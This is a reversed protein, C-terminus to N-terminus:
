NEPDEIPILDEVDIESVAAYIEASSNKVDVAGGGDKPISVIFVTGAGERSEVSIEGAHLEVFAKVLALGIGSGSYHSDIQYFREFINHIHGVPVGIGTDSVTLRIYEKEKILGSSLTVEIKGNGPTFKFANSLLNFCVREMKELDFYGTFDRDGEVSLILRIHRKLAVTTFSHVWEKLYTKLDAKQLVLDLKGNEYKRFDLIQNVLRLLINVNKRIIKLMGRQYDNLGDTALLQEVPDSVLTLPTRFDHSINTFFVLKAHTAEELQKSLEILQDRQQELQEKQFTIERNRASLERNMKIKSRFAQWLVALLTIFLLLILLGSYLLMQQSNIRQFYRNVKANLHEIKDGLEDIHDTQLKMVRANTFDVIATSLLYDRRFPRGQLIDMATQMVRDGSTPYIFTADLVGKLVQEVGYDRGPLADIGVIRIENERGHAKAALYAGVAMRDNQAFVMDIGPFCSLLSDMKEEAPSQLWEADESALLEIGPYNTLAARFGQHRDIAPTSGSLGALEVVKGKGNLRSGVYDGVAKGVEYNDAHIYATYKDSLINRDVMIVPIGQDFVEEIVATLPAAENPAVILLDM